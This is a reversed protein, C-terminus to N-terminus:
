NRAALIAARIMISIEKCHPLRHPEDRASQARDKTLAVFKDAMELGAVIGEIRAKKILALAAQADNRDMQRSM